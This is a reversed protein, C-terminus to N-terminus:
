QYLGNDSSHLQKCVAAINALVLFALRVKYYVLSIIWANKQDVTLTGTEEQRATMKQWQTKDPTWRVHKSNQQINVPM